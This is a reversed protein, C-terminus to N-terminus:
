VSKGAPRTTHHHQFTAYPTILNFVVSSLSESSAISLYTPSLYSPVYMYIYIHTYIYISNNIYIYIHIYLKIYTYICISTYIYICLSLTILALNARGFSAQSVKGDRRIRLNMQKSRWIMMKSQLIRRPNPM